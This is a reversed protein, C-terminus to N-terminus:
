IRKKRECQGAVATGSVIYYCLGFTTNSDANETLYSVTRSDFFYIGSGKCMAPFGSCFLLTAFLPQDQLDILRLRKNLRKRLDLSLAM